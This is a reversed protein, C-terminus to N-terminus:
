CPPVDCGGNAPSVAVPFVIAKGLLQGERVVVVPM